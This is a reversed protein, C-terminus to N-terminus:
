IKEYNDLNEHSFEFVVNKSLIKDTLNHFKEFHENLIGTRKFEDMASKEHKLASSIASGIKEEKYKYIMDAHECLRNVHIFVNSDNIRFDGQRIRYFVENNGWLQKILFWDHVKEFLAFSKEYAQKIFGNNYTEIIAPIKRCIEDLLELEECLLKTFEEGLFPNDQASISTSIENYYQSLHQQIYEAVSKEGRYLDFNNKLLIQYIKDDKIM